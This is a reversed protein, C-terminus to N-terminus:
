RVLPRSARDRSIRAMLSMVRQPYGPRPNYTRLIGDLSKHKYSKSEALRYAVHHIGVEVSPFKQRCSDWGLINNNRGEKGGGSELISLSPLLRWDLHNRDSAILFDEALFYAPSDLEAFFRRLKLLRSDNLYTAPAVEGSSSTAWDAALLAALVFARKFAIRM